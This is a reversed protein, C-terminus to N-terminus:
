VKCGNRESKATYDEFYIAEDVAKVIAEASYKLKNFLKTNLILINSDIDFSISSKEDQTLLTQSSYPVIEETGQMVLLDMGGSNINTVLSNAAQRGKSLPNSSRRGEIGAFVGNYVMIRLDFCYQKGDNSDFLAADVKEQVLYEEHNKFHKEIIQMQQKYEFSNDKNQLFVGFGEGGYSTNPKTICDQGRSHFMQIIHLLEKSNAALYTEPQRFSQGSMNLYKNIVRHTNYKNGTILRVDLDNIVVQEIKESPFSFNRRFIIDPYYAEKPIYLRNNRIECDSPIYMESYYGQKQFLKILYRIEKEIALPQDKRKCLIAISKKPLEQSVSRFINLFKFLHESNVNELKPKKREIAGALKSKLEVYYPALTNDNVEMFVPTGDKEILFDVSAYRFSSRKIPNDNEKPYFM